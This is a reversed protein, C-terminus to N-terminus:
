RPFYREFFYCRGAPLWAPIRYYRERVDALVGRRYAEYDFGRGLIAHYVGGGLPIQKTEVARFYQQYEQVQPAERRLIVIDKGALSRWDTDIDSQRAHATGRGFMPV